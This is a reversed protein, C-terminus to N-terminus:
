LLNGRLYRGLGAFIILDLMESFSIGAVQAAQPLLSTQTMGPITNTELIYFTSGKLIFDSRSMGRCGLAKHAKLAMAQMKKTMEKSLNAPTIEQSGGINYKAKYDFFISSKPIIETPPLAFARGKNDELIGCTFERGKIFQQVMIRESEKFANKLVKQLEGKSKVISVGVSSGGDVPKVVAPIQFNYKEKQYNKNLVAYRPVNMGLTRYLDNSIGKDMAMASSLVGSGSYPVGIWELLAQIRGDEGFVGHMAIFVFDFSKLENLVRGIDVSKNSGFEWLGSKKITVLTSKYKKHDLSEMIMKATHLSVEHETSPGGCIVAIELTTPM